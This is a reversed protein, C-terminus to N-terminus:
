GSKRLRSQETAATRPAARARARLPRIRQPMRAQGNTARFGSPTAGTRALFFRSFYSPDKFGLASGIQDISSDSYLLLRRAELLLRDTILEKANRGVHRRCLSNLYGPSVGLERAYFAVNRGQSRDGEIMEMYRQTRRDPTQGADTPRCEAYTRALTVLIEYAQARLLHVSDSRLRQLERRMRIIQAELRSAKAPSLYIAAAGGPAHFYGLRQLFHTDNFFEELFLGPFFLCIGDLERVQWVRVQGPATFIVTGPRVRYRSGDLTFRGRGRTVLIVDYFALTHPRALIFAPMERVWAADVLMEPGYKTTHFPVPKSPLVSAARLSRRAALRM